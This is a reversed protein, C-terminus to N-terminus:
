IRVINAKIEDNIEIIGYSNYPSFVKDTASGPNFFLIDQRKENFPCHSHGFIILDVADDKFATLLVNVLNAPAGYGHMLGIRYKGAKIVLKEPLSRKVEEPDMNGWVAKVNSCVLKLKKLVEPDELDGAHIVMDMGKFVSMIQEPLDKARLPIHTDSIVGIKM